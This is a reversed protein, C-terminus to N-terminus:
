TSSVDRGDGSDASGRGTDSLQQVKSEALERASDLVTDRTEGMYADEIETRPMVTGILAGAAVAAAGLAMPNERMTRSLRTQTTHGLSRARRGVESALESVLETVESLASYRAHQPYGSESFESYGRRYDDSRSDEGYASTNWDDARVRNGDRDHSRSRLLLWAVGVGILAVPLPNDRLPRPLREAARLTQEAMRSATEGAREAM